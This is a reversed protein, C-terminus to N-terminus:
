KDINKRLEDIQKQQEKVTEVLLAILNGYALSKIGDRNKMVAEPLVKEVEQAMLGVSRKQQGIRNFTYGNLEKVKEIPNLIPQVNEKLSIDSTSVIDGSATINGSVDLAESPTLTGIGVRSTSNDIFLKGNSLSVDLSSTGGSFLINSGSVLQLDNGSLRLTGIAGSNQLDLKPTSTDTTQILVNCGSSDQVHFNQSPEGGVGVYGASYYIDNDNPSSSRQWLPDEIEPFPLNTLGSGDGILETATLIGTTTINGCVYLNKAIGVGGAVQLAGTNCTTSETTNSISLIGTVGLNGSISGGLIDNLDSISVGSNKILGDTGCILIEESGVQLNNAYISNGVELNNSLTYLSNLRNAISNTKQRWQEITNLEDVIQPSPLTEPISM